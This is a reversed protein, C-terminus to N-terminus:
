IGVSGWGLGRLRTGQAGFRGYTEDRSVRTRRSRWYICPMWSSRGCHKARGQGQSWLLPVPVLVRDPNSARPNWYSSSSPSPSIGPTRTLAYPNQSPDPMGSSGWSRPYSQSNSSTWVTDRGLAPIWGANWPFRTNGSIGPIWILTPLTGFPASPHRPSDVELSPLGHCAQPGGSREDSHGM